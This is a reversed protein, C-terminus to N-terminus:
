KNRRQDQRDELERREAGGGGEGGSRGRWRGRREREISGTMTKETKM